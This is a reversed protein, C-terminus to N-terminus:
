EEFYHYSLFKNEGGIKGLADKRARAESLLANYDSFISTQNLFRVCPDMHPSPMLPMTLNFWYFDNEKFTQCQEIHLAVAHEYIEMEDRLCKLMNYWLVPHARIFATLESTTIGVRGKKTGLNSEMVAANRWFSSDIGEVPDILHRLLSMSVAHNELIGIVQFTDLNRMIRKKVESSSLTGLNKAHDLFYDSYVSYMRDKSVMHVNEDSDSIRNKLDLM